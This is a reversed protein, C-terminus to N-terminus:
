RFYPTWVQMGSPGRNSFVYYPIFLLDVPNGPKPEAAELSEYLAMAAPSPTLGVGRHKLVIVGGLLDKRLGIETEGTM